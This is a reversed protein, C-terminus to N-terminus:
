RHCDCPNCECCICFNELLDSGKATIYYSDNKEILYGLLVLADLRDLVTNIELFATLNMFKQLEAYVENLKM